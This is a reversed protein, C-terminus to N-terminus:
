AFVGRVMSLAMLGAKRRGSLSVRRSFVDYESREVERLLAQYISALALPCVRSRPHVWETLLAGRAFYSRARRVQFALFARWNEDVRGAAIQEESVGFRTLDEQPLYIRDRAMDEAVDRIINTLQMAIGLDIAVGRVHEVDGSYGFVDLCALGVASAVHYCYDYLEQFTAYRRQVLDQECGIAVLDLDHHRAGFRRCTDQLALMLPDLDADPPPSADDAQAVGLARRLRLRLDALLRAREECALGDDDAFDDAVRCYAYIAELGRRREAPLLKFAYVFNKARAAVIEHCRAYAQSLEPTPDM